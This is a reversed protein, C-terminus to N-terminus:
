LSPACPYVKPMSMRIELSRRSSRLVMAPDCVVWPLLRIVSAPWRPLHWGFPTGAADHLVWDHPVGPVDIHIRGAAKLAAPDHIYINEARNASIYLGLPVALIRRTTLPQEDPRGIRLVVDQNESPPDPGRGTAM